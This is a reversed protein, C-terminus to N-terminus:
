GGAAIGLRVPRPGPPFTVGEYLEALAIELGPAPMGISAGAGEDVQRDWARATGRSGLVVEPANPEILLIHDLTEMQRYEALKEFTDFDRMTPPLVEALLSPPAATMAQPDRRGCDVGADPRRIQGPLTEVAGDGTFPRCPCGRLRRRLEAPLNVVIDDHVNRAGAVMRVPRGGVLEYRDPQREQWAFFAAVTWPLHAPGAMTGGM